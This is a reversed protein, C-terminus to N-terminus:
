LARSGYSLNLVVVLTDALKLALAHHLTIKQDLRLRYDPPRLQFGFTELMQLTQYQVFLMSLCLVSSFRPTM